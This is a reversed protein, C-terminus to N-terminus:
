LFPRRNNVSAGNLGAPAASSISFRLSLGLWRGAGAGAGSHAAFSAFSAISRWGFRWAALVAAIALAAMELMSM